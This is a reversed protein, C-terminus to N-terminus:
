KARFISVDGCSRRLSITHVISRHVVIPLSRTYSAAPRGSDIERKYCSRRCFFLCCISSAAAMSSLTRFIPEATSPRPHPPPPTPPFALSFCVPLFFFFQVTHLISQRSQLKLDMEPNRCTKNESIVEKGVIRNGTRYTFKIIMLSYILNELL